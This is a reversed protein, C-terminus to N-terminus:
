KYLTKLVIKEWLRWPLISKVFHNLKVGKGVAYRLKPHPTNAAFTILKAVDTPNGLNKEENTLRTQIKEMFPKYSSNHLLTEADTLSSSWINTAYSGPEILIVDIGFPKLELRLSECFGEIAHKSAVYASLAPFGILGSVSSLNIIRGSKQKKMFPIVAQSISIVGLVNTEFQARYQEITVDEAFGGQAFGANNVLLQIHRYHELKNQFQVIDEQSTVDLQLFDVKDRLHHKILENQLVEAKELNRMTAIVHYGSKALELVTLLGFGSSAGTVIAQKVNM